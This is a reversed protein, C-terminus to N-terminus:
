RRWRRARCEPRCIGTRAPPPQWRQAQLSFPRLYAIQGTPWSSPPRAGGKRDRKM